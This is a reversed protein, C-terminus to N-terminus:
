LCLLPNNVVTTCAILNEILCKHQTFLFHSRTTILANSVENLSKRFCSSNTAAGFVKMAQSMLRRGLASGFAEAEEFAVPFWFKGAAFSSRYPFWCCSWWRAFSGSRSDGFASALCCFIRKCQLEAPSSCIRCCHFHNLFYFSM